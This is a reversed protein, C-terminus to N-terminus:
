ANEKDTFTCDTFAHTYTGDGNDRVDYLLSGGAVAETVALMFVHRRDIEPQESIREAIRDRVVGSSIGFSDLQYFSTPANLERQKQWLRNGDPTPLADFTKITKKSWRAGMVLATLASSVLSIFDRRILKM